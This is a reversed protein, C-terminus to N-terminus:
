EVVGLFSTGQEVIHDALETAGSDGSNGVSHLARAGLAARRLDIRTIGPVQGASSMHAERWDSQRIIIAPRWRAGVIERHGAEHEAPQTSTRAAL